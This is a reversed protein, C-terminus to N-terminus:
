QTPAPKAPIFADIPKPKAPPKSTAPKPKSAAASADASAPTAKAVVKPAAKVPAKAAVTGDAPKVKKPVPLGRPLVIDTGDTLEGLENPDIAVALGGLPDPPAPPRPCRFLLEQEVKIYRSIDARQEVTLQRAAMKPSQEMQAPLGAAKFSALEAKLQECVDPPLRAALAGHGSTALALFLSM